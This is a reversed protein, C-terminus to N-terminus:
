RNRQDFSNAIEVVLCLLRVIASVTALGKGLDRTEKFKTLGAGIM